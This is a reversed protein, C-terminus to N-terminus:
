LQIENVKLETFAQRHGVTRKYNKRRKMKFVRLKKGRGNNVVSCVVKAKLLAEADAVIGDDKAILSVHDLEVTDGVEAELKEVRFVDGQAVKHQKGGSTVIAYM